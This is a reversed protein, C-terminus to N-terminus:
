KEREDRYPKGERLCADLRAYRRVWFGNHHPHRDWGEDKKWQDFVARAEDLKGAEALAAVRAPETERKVEALVEDLPRYGSRPMGDDRLAQEIKALYEDIIAAARSGDRVAADPCTALLWALVLDPNEAGVPTPESLLAIAAAYEGRAMLASGARNSTRGSQKGIAKMHAHFAIVDDFEGADLQITALFGSRYVSSDEPRPEQSVLAKGERAAEAFRGTEHYDKMLEYRVEECGLRIGERADAFREDSAMRKRVKYRRVYGRWDGPRLEIMRDALRLRETLQGDDNEDSVGARMNAWGFRVSERWSLWLGHQWVATALVALLVAAAVRGAVTRHHNVALLTVLVYLAAGFASLLWLMAYVTHFCCGIALGLGTAALGGLGIIARKPVASSEEHRWDDLLAYLVVAVGVALFFLVVLNVFVYGTWKVQEFEGGDIVVGTVFVGVGVLMPIGLIIWSPM